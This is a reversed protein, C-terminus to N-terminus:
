ACHGVSRGTAEDSGLEAQCGGRKAGYRPAAVALYPDVEVADIALADIGAELSEEFPAGVDIGVHRGTGAKIGRGFHTQDHAWGPQGAFRWESGCTFLDHM